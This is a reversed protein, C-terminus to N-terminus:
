REGELESNLREQYKRYFRTQRNETDVQEGDIFVYRVPASVELLHGETVVLDAIKGPELSGLEDDVGLVEAAGLTIARVAEEEPLGYAAAMAAHFAVNRPNEEDATQIAIRAGARWLVAPNAFPADYPDYETTPLELIPGVVVQIDARAIAEAVKWGETVGFLVADLELEEIFRLAYLISQANNVHLAVRAEGNAFPVLSELRPDFGPGIVGAREAEEGLRGYESADRFLERMREVAEPEEKKKSENRV